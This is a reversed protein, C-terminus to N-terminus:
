STKPSTLSRRSTLFLLNKGNTYAAYLWSANLVEGSDRFEGIRRMMVDVREQIEPQLKRVNSMSFFPNLASRRIKHRDHDVTAFM